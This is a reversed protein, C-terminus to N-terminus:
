FDWANGQLSVAARFGVLNYRDHEVGEEGYFLRESSRMSTTPLEYDGGRGIYYDCSPEMWPSGDAPAGNYDEHWCDEAMEQINGVLDYFGWNNPEFSGVPSAWLHPTEDSCSALAMAQYGSGLDAFNAFTCADAGDNGWFFKTQTGARTAYEYEAETPLRYQRGTRDSLWSLYQKAEIRSLCGAPHKGTVELGPQAYSGDSIFVFNGGDMHRYDPHITGFYKHKQPGSDPLRVGCKGDNQFGTETAFLAFEDITVSFVGLAFSYDFTVQHIPKEGDVSDSGMNFSGAPVVIMQPCDECDSFTSLPEQSHAPTAVLFPGSLAILCALFLTKMM